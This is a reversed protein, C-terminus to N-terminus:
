KFLKLGLSKKSKWKKGETFKAKVHLPSFFIHAVSGQFVGSSLVDSFVDRCLSGGGLHVLALPPSPMM